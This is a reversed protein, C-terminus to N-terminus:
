CCVEIAEFATRFEPITMEANFQHPYIEHGAERLSELQKLRHHFHKRSLAEFQEDSEELDNVPHDSTSESHMASSSSFARTFRLHNSIIGACRELAGLGDTVADRRRNTSSGLLYTVTRTLTLPNGWIGLRVSTIVGPLAIVM